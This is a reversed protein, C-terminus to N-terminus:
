QGQVEDAVGAEERSRKGSGPEERLRWFWPSESNPHYKEVGALEAVAPSNVDKWPFKNGDAWSAEKVDRTEKPGNELFFALWEAIKQRSEQRKEMKTKMEEIECRSWKGAGDLRLGWQAAAMIKSKEAQLVRQPTVKGGSIDKDYKPPLTLRLIWKAMNRISQSGQVDTGAKNEHAVLGVCADSANAIADFGQMIPMMAGQSNAQDSSGKSEPVFIYLADILAFVPKIEACWEAIQKLLLLRDAMDVDALTAVHLDPHDLMGMETLRSRVLFEPDDLMVMLVAGTRKVAFEGFMPEGTLVSKAIEMGLLSKGRGDRGAIEGFMGDPVVGEILFKVEKDSLDRPRRPRFVKKEPEADAPTWVKTAAVAAKIDEKTHGAEIWDTVDGKKSLGELRVVKVEIGAAHVLPAVLAAHKEGAEDNDPFIVLRKIGGNILQETYEPRWNGAGGMSTTAPMKLRLLTEADKEGECLALGSKKQHWLHLKYLVRRVGELSPVGDARIQSFGKPTYRIVSFLLEGHEDTYDYRATAVRPGPEPESEKPPPTLTPSKVAPAYLSAMSPDGMSKCIEETTCGAHCKVLVGHDEKDSWDVKLSPTRDAHGPCQSLWGRGSRTGTLGMDRLRQVFARYHFPAEM